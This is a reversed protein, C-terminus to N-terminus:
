DSAGEKKPKYYQPHNEKLCGEAFIDDCGHLEEEDIVKLCTDCIYTSFIEGGDV